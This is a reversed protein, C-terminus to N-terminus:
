MDGLDQEHEGPVHKRNKFGCINYLVGGGGGLSGM